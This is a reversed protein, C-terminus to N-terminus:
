SELDVELEYCSLCHWEMCNGCFIDADRKCRSCKTTELCEM